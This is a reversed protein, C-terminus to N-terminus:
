FLLPGPGNQLWLFYSFHKFIRLVLARWLTLRFSTRIALTPVIKAAYVFIFMPNFSLTPFLYIHTWVSLYIFPPLFPIVKRVSFNWLIYTFTGELLHVKVGVGQTHASISSESGCYLTCLPFIAEGAKCYLFVTHKSIVHVGKVHHSLIFMESHSMKKGLTCLFYSCLGTLHFIYSLGFNFFM